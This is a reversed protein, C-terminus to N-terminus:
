RKLLQRGSQAGSSRRRRPCCPGSAVSGERFEIRGGLNAEQALERAVALLAPSLDLGVALGRTGVRRAIERTVVGSGCGVDLVCEGATIGLLGLYTQPSRSRGRSQRTARASRRPRTGQRCRREKYRALSKTARVRELETAWRRRDQERPRSRTLRGKQKAMEQSVGDHKMPRCRVKPGALSGRLPM